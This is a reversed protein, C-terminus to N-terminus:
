HFLSYLSIQAHNSFGTFNVVGIRLLSVLRDPAFQGGTEPRFQGGKDPCYQGGRISTLKDGTKTCFFDHRQHKKVGVNM